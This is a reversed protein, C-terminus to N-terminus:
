LQLHQIVSVSLYVRVIGSLLLLLTVVELAMCLETQNHVNTSASIGFRLTLGKMYRLIICMGGGGGECM